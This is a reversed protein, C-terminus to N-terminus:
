FEMGYIKIKRAANVRRRALEVNRIFIGNNGAESSNSVELTRTYPNYQYLYFGKENLYDEQEKSGFIEMIIVNLEPSELISDAGQLVDKECGEVDIKLINIHKENKCLEDLTSVPIREYEENGSPKEDLIHNTTDLGKTFFVEGIKNSVGMQIITVNDLANVELTKKIINCAELSPEIALGHTCIKGLLVSYVGVNAGCDLFLDEERAYHLLFAMENFELLGLYYNGTASTRGPFLLLKRGGFWNKERGRKAFHKECVQWSVFRWLVKAKNGKAMPHKCLNKLVSSVVSM